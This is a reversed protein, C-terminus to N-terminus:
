KHNTKSSPILPIKITKKQFFKFKQYNFIQFIPSKYICRSTQFIANRKKFNLHKKKLKISKTIEQKKM